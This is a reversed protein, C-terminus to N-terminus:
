SWLVMKGNSQRGIFSSMTLRTGESDDIEHFNRTNFLVLDGTVFEFDKKACGAVLEPAYHYSGPVKFAEHQPNWQRDYVRCRGGSRPAKLYLNWSLQERVANIKWNPADVPAYDMHLLGGRSLNRFIGAHYLGLAESECAIAISRAKAVFLLHSIVRDIPNFLKQRLAAHLDQAKRAANFYDSKRHPGYECQAPGLRLISEASKHFTYSDFQGFETIFRSLERCEDATAFAPIRIAAIQNKFLQDLTKPNLPQDANGRWGDHEKIQHEVPHPTCTSM